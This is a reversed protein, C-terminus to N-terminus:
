QNIGGDTIQKRGRRSRFFERLQEGCEEALV